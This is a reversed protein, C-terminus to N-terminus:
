PKWQHLTLQVRGNILTIGDAELRQQQRASNPNSIKGQSNIVRHWTIKSEKPLRSLIRGVMRSQEPLGAMTAIQGYTAVKGKPIAFVIQWVLAQAKETKTQTTKLNKSGVKTKAM